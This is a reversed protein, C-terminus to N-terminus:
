STEKQRGLVTKKFEEALSGVFTEGRSKKYEDLMADTKEVARRNQAEREEAKREEPSLFDDLGRQLWGNLVFRDPTAPVFRRELAGSRVAHAVNKVATQIHGPSFNCQTWFAEWSKPSELRSFANFVDANGQWLSIFLKSLGKEGEGDPNVDGNVNGNGEGDGNGNGNTTESNLPPNNESVLPTTKEFCPPNNETTESNMPATTKIDYKKANKNGKPAGGKQGEIKAKISVDLNPKFAIFLMKLVGELDPEVAFFCYENIARSLKGYDEDSLENMAEHWSNYFTNYSVRKEM